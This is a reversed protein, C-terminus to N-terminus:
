FVYLAISGYPVSCFNKFHKRSVFGGPFSECLWLYTPVYVWLVSIIM